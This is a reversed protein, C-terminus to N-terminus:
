NITGQMTFILDASGSNSTLVFTIKDGINVLNLATALVTQPTSNVIISDLGTVSVGNIQVSVVITGSSTALGYLGNITYAYRSSAIATITTNTPSAIDLSGMKIIEASSGAITVTGLGDDSLTVGAGQKLSKLNSRSPLSEKVLSVGTGSSYIRHKNSSGGGTALGHEKSDAYIVEGAPGQPGVPGTDGKAGDKGNLGDKGDKGDNGAVGQIGQIGQPGREGKDGKSGTAGDFGHQEVVIVQPNAPSLKDGAVKIPRDPSDNKLIIPVDDKDKPLVIPSGAEYQSEWVYPNVKPSVQNGSKAKYVCGEIQCLDGAKYITKPNYEPVSATAEGKHSQIYGVNHNTEKWYLNNFPMKGSSPRLAEYGKGNHHVLDGTKYQSNFSYNKM